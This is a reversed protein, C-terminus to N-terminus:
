RINFGIFFTTEGKGESFEIEILKARRDPSSSHFPIPHRWPETMASGSHVRSQEERTRWPLDGSKESGQMKKIIM